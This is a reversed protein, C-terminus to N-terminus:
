HWANELPFKEYLNGFILSVAGRLTATEKFNISQTLTNKAFLTSETDDKSRKERVKYM